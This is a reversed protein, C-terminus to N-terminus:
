EETFRRQPDAGTGLTAPAKNSLVKTVFRQGESIREMEIAMADISQQMQIMRHALDDSHIPQPVPPFSARRWVFRAFAIVLPCLVFISVIAIAGIMNDSVYDGALIM